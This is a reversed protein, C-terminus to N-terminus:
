DPTHISIAVSLILLKALVDVGQSFPVLGHRPTHFTSSFEDLCIARCLAETLTRKSACAAEIVQPPSVKRVVWFCASCSSDSLGFPTAHKVVGAVVDAFRLVGNGLPNVVTSLCTNVFGHMNALSQSLSQSLSKLAPYM